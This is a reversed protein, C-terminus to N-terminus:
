LPNTEEKGLRLSLERRAAASAMMLRAREGRSQSWIKMKGSPVLELRLCSMLNLFPAKM